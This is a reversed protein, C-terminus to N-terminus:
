RRVSKLRLYAEASGGVIVLFIGASLIDLPIGSQFLLYSINQTSGPPGVLVIQYFGRAPVDFSVSEKPHVTINVIPVGPNLSSDVPSIVLKASGNFSALTLSTSAPLFFDLQPTNVPLYGEENRFPILLSSTMLALGIVVVLWTIRKETTM